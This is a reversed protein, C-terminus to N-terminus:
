VMAEVPGPLEIEIELTAIDAARDIRVIAKEPEIEVYRGVVTLIERQLRPLFDEGNRSVREHALVIQLRDKALAATPRARRGALLFELINM